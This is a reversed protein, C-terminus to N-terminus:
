MCRSPDSAILAKVIIAERESVDVHDQKILADFMMESADEHRWKKGPRYGCQTVM